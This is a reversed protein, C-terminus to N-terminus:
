RMAKHLSLYNKGWLRRYLSRLFKKLYISCHKGCLVLFLPNKDLDVNEKKYFLSHNQSCSYKDSSSSRCSSGVKTFKEMRTIKM